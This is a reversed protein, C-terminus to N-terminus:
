PRKNTHTRRQARFALAFAGIFRGWGTTVAVALAGIIPPIGPTNIVLLGVGVGCSCALFWIWAQGSYANLVNLTGEYIYSSAIPLMAISLITLEWYTLSFEEGYIFQLVPSGALIVIPITAGVTLMIIGAIKHARKLLACSGSAEFTWRFSTILIDKLTSGSLNVATLLYAATAFVGTTADDAIVSLFLIPLYTSLAALTESVTTPTGARLIRRYGGKITGPEPPTKVVYRQASVAVMMAGFGVCLITLPISETLWIAVFAITMTGFNHVLSHLGILLLRNERQFRAYLIDLYVDFCRVFVVAALLRVNLEPNLQYYAGVIVISIGIGILRLILYSVWTFSTQLSLYVTRLGFQGIIFVPTVVALTLSYQGVAAAGGGVQAFLWVLFWQALAWTLSGAAFIYRDSSRTKAPETRPTGTHPGIAKQQTM